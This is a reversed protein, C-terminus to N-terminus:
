RIYKSSDIYYPININAEGVNVNLTQVKNQLEPFKFVLTFQEHPYQWPLSHAWLVRAPGDMVIIDNPQSYLRVPSEETPPLLLPLMDLLKETEGMAVTFIPGITNQFMHISDICPNLGASKDYHVLTFQLLEM